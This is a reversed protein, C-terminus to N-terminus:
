RKIFHEIHCRSMFLEEIDGPYNPVQLDCNSIIKYKQVDRKIFTEIERLTLSKGLNNSGVFVTMSGPEFELTPQGPSSGFKFYIKKLM